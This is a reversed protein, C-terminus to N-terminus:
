LARGAPLSTSSEFVRRPWTLAIEAGTRKPLSVNGAVFSAGSRELFTKAIFLGLGMGGEQGSERRSAHRLTVYPEGLRDIVEAAFGAGDDRIVIRVSDGTWAAEVEIRSKAFTVANEVLNGLGYLIAPNRQCQPEPAEGTETVDITVDGNRHPAVSEEILVAVTMRGLPSAAEHGLSTIKALIARCRASQELLLKIDDSLPSSKPLSRDIERTVVAITALPTGLEHAAAAALGDLQFLHQERALTLEAAALADALQRAEEAVRWAYVGIFVLGLLIASWIGLIYLAPLTFVEGPFWPLPLHFFALVTSAVVALGGLMLTHNPTLATASIMVPALFLVAFPNQLGGTLGLLAALQLVDYTLQLTAIREDVRHNIPYRSRLFLNLMASLAVIAVASTIPLTFGLGIYVGLVAFSQGGVALWRLRVLTALRVRKAGGSLPVGTLDAM